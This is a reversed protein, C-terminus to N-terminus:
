KKFWVSYVIWLGFFLVFVGIVHHYQGVNIQGYRVSYFEQDFVLSFGLISLALGVISLLIDNSRSRNM